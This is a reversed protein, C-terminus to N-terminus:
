LFNHHPLQHFPSLSMRLFNYVRILPADVSDQPLQPRPPADPIPPQDAPFPIYFALRVDAEDTIHRKIVGTPTRPFEICVLSLKFYLELPVFRAIWDLRRKHQDLIGRARFVLWGRQVFWPSM